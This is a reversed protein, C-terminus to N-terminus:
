ASLFSRILFMVPLIISEETILPGYTVERPFDPLFSFGDKELEICVPTDGAQFKLLVGEIISPHDM